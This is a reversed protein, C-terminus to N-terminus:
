DLFPPHRSALRVLFHVSRLFYHTMDSDMRDLLRWVWARKAVLPQAGPASGPAPPYLIEEDGGPGDVLRTLIVPELPPQASSSASPAPRAFAADRAAAIHREDEAAILVLGIINDAFLSLAKDQVSAETDMTLPLAGGLWM